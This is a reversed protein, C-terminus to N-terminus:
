GKDHYEDELEAAQENIDALARAQEGDSSGHAIRVSLDLPSPVFRSDDDDASPEVDADDSADFIALFAEWVSRAM